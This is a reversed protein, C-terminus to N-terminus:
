GGARRIPDRTGPLRNVTHDVITGAAKPLPANIVCRLKRTVDLLVSISHKYHPPTTDDNLAAFQFEEFYNYGNFFTWWQTETAKDRVHLLDLFSMYVPNKIQYLITQEWTSGTDSKNIVGAEVHRLEVVITKGTIRQTKDTQVARPWTTGKDPSISIDLNHFLHLALFYGFQRPNTLNHGYKNMNHLQDLMPKIIKYEM